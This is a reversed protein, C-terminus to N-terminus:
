KAGGTVKQIGYKITQKMGNNQYYFKLKGLFSYTRWEEMETIMKKDEFSDPTDNMRNEAGSVSEEASEEEQVPSTQTIKDSAEETDEEAEFAGFHKGAEVNRNERMVPSLSYDGERIANIEKQQNKYLSDLLSYNVNLIQFYWPLKKLVDWWFSSYIGQNNEIPSTFDYVIFPRWTAEECINVRKKDPYWIQSSGLTLEESTFLYWPIYGVEGRFYTNIDEFDDVNITKHELGMRIRKCNLVLLDTKIKKVAHTPDYCEAPVGVAYYDDVSCIRYFEGIDKLAVVDGTILICKNVKKLIQTLAIPLMELSGTYEHFTCTCKPFRQIFWDFRKEAEEKCKDACFLHFDLANYGDSKELISMMSVAVSQYNDPSVYSCVPITAPEDVFAIPLAKYVLSSDEMLKAIFLGTLRESIFFRKESMDVRNEFEHLISFIWECYKFFLEKKFICMNCFNSYDGSYYRRITEKYEPYKELVIENALDIDEKRQNEIYHNYVNQVKGIHPLFDCGEVLEELIKKSYNIQKYYYKLNFDRINLVDLMDSRFIFHRRYHMLGIYDPNGLADYNKWAWYVATMENYSDNRDSINDGTDDGIMNEMLWKFNKDDPKAKKRANARGVHIPTLIDDKLLPAKKHYCILLKINIM